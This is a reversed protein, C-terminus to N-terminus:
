NFPAPSTGSVERTWSYRFNYARNSNEPQVTALRRRQGPAVQVRLRDVECRNKINECERPHLSTVTIEVTSHNEVYIHQGRGDWAAEMGTTVTQDSPAVYVRQAASACGGLAVVGALTLGAFCRRLRAINM